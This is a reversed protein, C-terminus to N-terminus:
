LKLEPTSDPLTSDIFEAGESLLHKNEEIERLKRQPRVVTFYRYARFGL